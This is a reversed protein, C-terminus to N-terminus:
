SFDFLSRGDKERDEAVKGLILFTPAWHGVFIGNRESDSDESKFFNVASLIISGFGLIYLINSLKM